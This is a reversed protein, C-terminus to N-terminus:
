PLSGKQTALTSCAAAMTATPPDSAALAATLPDKVLWLKDPWWSINQIASPQEHHLNSQQCNLRCLRPRRQPHEGSMRLAQGRSEKRMQECGLLSLELTRSICACAGNRVSSAMRRRWHQVNILSHHSATRCILDATLLLGRQWALM